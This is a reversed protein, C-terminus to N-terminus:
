VGGDHVIEYVYEDDLTEECEVCLSLGNLISTLIVLTVIHVRDGDATGEIWQDPHAHQGTKESGHKYAAIHGQIPRDLNAGVTHQNEQSL